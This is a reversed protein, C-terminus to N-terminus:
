ATPELNTASSRCALSVSRSGDPIAPFHGKQIRRAHSEHVPEANCACYGVRPSASQFVRGLGPYCCDRLLTYYRTCHYVLM